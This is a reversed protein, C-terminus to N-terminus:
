PEMAAIITKADIYEPPTQKLWGTQQKQYFIDTSNMINYMAKDISSPRTRENIEIVSKCCSNRGIYWIKYFSVLDEATVYDVTPYKKKNTWALAGEKFNKAFCEVIRNDLKVGRIIFTLLGSWEDIVRKKLQAESLANIKTKTMASLPQAYLENTCTVGILLLFVVLLCKKKM